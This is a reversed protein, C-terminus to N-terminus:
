PRPNALSGNELGSKVAQVCPQADHDAPGFRPTGDNLELLKGCDGFAAATDVMAEQPGRPYSVASEFEGVM